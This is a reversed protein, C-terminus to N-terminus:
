NMGLRQKLAQIFSAEEASVKQGRGFLGEGAENAVQQALAVLFARYGPGDPDDALLSLALDIQDLVADASVMTKDTPLEDKTLGRALAFCEQLLANGQFPEVAAQMFELGAKLEMTFSVPGTKDVQATGAILWIPLELLIQREEDTYAKM